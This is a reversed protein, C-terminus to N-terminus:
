MHLAIAIPFSTEIVFKKSVEITAVNSMTVKWQKHGIESRQYCKVSWVIKIVRIYTCLPWKCWVM